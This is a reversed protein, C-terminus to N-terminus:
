VEEYWVKRKCPILKYIVITIIILFILYFLRVYWRGQPLGITLYMFSLVVALSWTFNGLTLESFKWEVKKIFKKKKM